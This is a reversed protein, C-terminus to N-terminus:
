LPETPKYPLVKSEKQWSSEQSDESLYVESPSSLDIKPLKLLFDPTSLRTEKIIPVESIVQV